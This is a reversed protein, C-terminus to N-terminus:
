PATLRCSCGHCLGPQCRELGAILGEDPADSCAIQSSKGREVIPVVSRDVGHGSVQETRALSVIDYLLDEEAEPTAGSLKVLRATAECRPQQGNGAM